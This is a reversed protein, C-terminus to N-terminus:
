FGLREMIKHAAPEALDEEKLHKKLFARIEDIDEDAIPVILYPTFAKKRQVILQAGKETEEIGFSSLIGFPYYLGDINIGRKSIEVSLTRPKKISYISLAIAGVVVLIGFLINDLLIAAIALSLAIIWLAFYWDGGRKKHEYEPAQWAIVEKTDNMTTLYLM